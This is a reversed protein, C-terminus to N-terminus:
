KASLKIRQIDSVSRHGLDPSDVGINRGQKGDMATGSTSQSRQMWKSREATTKRGSISKIAGSPTSRANAMVALRAFIADRVRVPRIM